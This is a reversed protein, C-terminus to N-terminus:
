LFATLRQSHAPNGDLTQCGLHISQHRLKVRVSAAWPARGAGVIGPTLVAGKSLGAV